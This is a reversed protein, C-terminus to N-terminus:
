KFFSNKMGYRLVYRPFFSFYDIILTRFHHKVIFNFFMKNRSHYKCRQINEIFLLLVHTYSSNIKYSNIEHSSYKM